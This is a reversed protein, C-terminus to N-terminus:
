ADGGTLMEVLDGRRFTASLRQLTRERQSFLLDLADSIEQEAREMYGSHREEVLRRAAEFNRHDLRDIEVGMDNLLYGGMLMAVFRSGYALFDPAGEPPRRRRNEAHRHLLAAVVAQAGNLDPTFITRYLAGFHERRAFRAQHPRERWVALVAEAVTASTFENSSVASEERKARYEYGLDKISVALDQQISDNTKLDRLDVPNQSNTAFTIAKVLADDDQEIEYIRVLADASGITDGVQKAVQQVTRATQGGNVIQMDKVQVTWDASSMANHRFQSCVMTIGNNYFYFNPRKSPDRLTAAISENVRNGRLGLYRRINKEFLRSNHVDVLRALEAASIRGILVRRFDFTEVVAQGALRLVDDVPKQAQLEALLEDCGFHRWEVQSGFRRSAADIHQAAHETWSVGNNAAVATVRPIAGDRVFSRVQEVRRQLRRNLGPTALQRAPDFLAGIAAILKGIGNEPFAATGDLKRRYKGQVVAIAIEGDAPPEFCLVDVGFDNGGDVISDMAEDDPLDFITKTVFLLFATSKTREEDNGLRLEDAFFDAHKEAIGSVRQDIIQAALSM